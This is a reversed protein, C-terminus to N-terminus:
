AICYVQHNVADRSLAGRQPVNELDAVYRFDPRIYLICKIMRSFIIGNVTLPIIKSWRIERFQLIYVAHYRKSNMLRHALSDKNWSAARM